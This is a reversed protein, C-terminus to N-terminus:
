PAIVVFSPLNRNVTGLGYSLWSGISPRAFTFSGTHIGLTAEYHNTHDSKMSRIVCLDDVCQAMHPFLSSVQTGCQGHPAFDWQPRKLFMQFEGKRGHFENVPITKGADAFLKPKYDWSDVHSVGGSMYLFIVRKAKAPFHPRKPALPDAASPQASEEALLESVLAPLLASGGAMSRLFARRSPNDMRVTNM